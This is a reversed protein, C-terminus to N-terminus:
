IWIPDLLWKIVSGGSGPKVVNINVEPDQYVVKTGLVTTRVTGYMIIYV